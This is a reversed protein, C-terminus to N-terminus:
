HIIVVNYFSIISDVIFTIFLKWILVFSEQVKFINQIWWLFMPYVESLLM